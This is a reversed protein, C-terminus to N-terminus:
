DLGLNRRQLCELNVTSIPAATNGNSIMWGGFEACGHVGITARVQDNDAESVWHWKSQMFRDDKMKRYTPM